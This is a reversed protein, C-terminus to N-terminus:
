PILGAERLEADLEHVEAELLVRRDLLNRIAAALAVARPAEDDAAARVLADLYVCAAELLRRAETPFSM